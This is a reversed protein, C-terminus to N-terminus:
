PKWRKEDLSKNKLGDKLSILEILSGWPAKGYVGRNREGEEIGALAHPKSLLKGGAKEFQNAAAEIDDVYVSFHTLGFDNLAVADRSATNEFQFLELGPGNSIKLFSMRVIESGKPLGLQQETETGKMPEDNESILEYLLEADLANKLFEVASDIDPVTIGIHEIGKFNTSKMNKLKTICLEPLSSHFIQIIREFFQIKIKFKFFHDLLLEFTQYDVMITLVFKVQRQVSMGIVLQNVDYFSVSDVKVVPLVRAVFGAIKEENRRRVLMIKLYFFRVSIKDKYFKGLM